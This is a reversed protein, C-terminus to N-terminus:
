HKRGKWEYSGFFSSFAVFVCFFPYWLNSILFFKVSQPKIFKGTQYLILFDIMIKIAFLLYWNWFSFLSFLTLFFSLTISLNGTFVILATVKGFNNKYAAAKSAWRIRQNILSKWSEEAKTLVINSETKLYHVKIAGFYNDLLAKQLLFVDDGSAIKNNGEFGNIKNFLNKTYAFNAGNCMFPKELGFSGITAGQLSMLDLQQFHHLFSEGTFFSVAGAIMEPNNEQIYADLVKLWNENVYCDADTTLIWENRALKIASTIADKKPSSSIRINEIVSFNFNSVQFENIIKVSLDDSSDNVFLVEFMDKPYDLRSFSHLLNPLNEAENRFPVVISFRTIPTVNTPEFFKIKTFGYALFGIFLAYILIIGFFVFTIIEM